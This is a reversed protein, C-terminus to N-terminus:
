IWVNTSRVGQLSSGRATPVPLRSIAAHQLRAMSPTKSSKEHSVAFLAVDEPRLGRRRDVKNTHLTPPDTSPHDIYTPVLATYALTSTPQTPLPSPTIVRGGSGSSDNTEVPTVLGNRVEVARRTRTSDHGASNSGEPVPKKPTQGLAFLTGNTGLAPTFNSQVLTYSPLIKRLNAKDSNPSSAPNAQNKHISRPLGSSTTEQSLRNSPKIAPTFQPRSSLSPTKPLTTSTPSRASNIKRASTVVPVLPVPPITDPDLAIGTQTRGKLRSSATSGTERKEPQNILIPTITKRTPIGSPLRRPVKSLIKSRHDPLYRSNTAKVPTHRPTPLLKNPFGATSTSIRPAPSHFHSDSDTSNTTGPLINSPKNTLTVHLAASNHRGVVKAVPSTLFDATTSSKPAPPPSSVSTIKDISIRAEHEILPQLKTETNIMVPGPGPNDLLGLAALLALHSSSKAMTMDSAGESNDDEGTSNDYKFQDSEVSATSTSNETPLSSDGVATSAANSTYTVLKESSEQLTNQAQISQSKRQFEAAIRVTEKDFTEMVLGYEEQVVDEDSMVSCADCYEEGEWKHHLKLEGYHEEPVNSMSVSVSNPHGLIPSPNNLDTSADDLDLFKTAVDFSLDDQSYISASSVSTNCCDTVDPVETSDVASTSSNISSDFLSTSPSTLSSEDEISIPIEVLTTHTTDSNPRHVRIMPIDSYIHNRSELDLPLGQNNERTFDISSTHARVKSLSKSTSKPKPENRINTWTPAIQLPPAQIDQFIEIVVEFDRVAYADAANTVPSGHENLDPCFGSYMDESIMASLKREIEKSCPVVSRSIPSYSIFKPSPPPTIPRTVASTKHSESMVPEVSDENPISPVSLRDVQTSPGSEYIVPLQTVEAPEARVIAREGVHSVTMIEDVDPLAPSNSYPYEYPSYQAQAQVSRHAEMRARHHETQIRSQYSHSSPISPISPASTSANSRFEPGYFSSSQTASAKVGREIDLKNVMGCSFVIMFAVFFQWVTQIRQSISRRNEPTIDASSMPLLATAPKSLTFWAILSFM